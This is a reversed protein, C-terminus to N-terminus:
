FPVEDVLKELCDDSIAISGGCIQNRYTLSGIKRCWLCNISWMKTLAPWKCVM